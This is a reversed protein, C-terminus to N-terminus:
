NLVTQEQILKGFKGLLKKSIVRCKGKPLGDATVEVLIEGAEKSKVIIIATGRYLHCKTETIQDDICPNGSGMSVFEGTGTINVKIEREDDKLRNGAEDLLEVRIYALDMGDACILPDEPTLSLIAAEKVTTLSSRSIENGDKYVVAELIGPEYVVDMTAMLKHFPVRGLSRGNFFLEAEDGAGYVDVKVPKGEYEDAFTWTDNVDYWHWGSGSFNEGFHKPHTTYLGSKGHNGWMIERYISQPRQEGTLDFDAQWPTRWPYPGIFSVEENESEWFVNGLGVEGLYDVAVWICDGIVYPLKEVKEWYDYTNFAHTETALIVRDPFMEHSREYIDKLYNYGVIDLPECFEKTAEEWDPHEVQLNAEFNGGSAENEDEGAVPFLGCLACLVPRTSDFERVKNALCKSWKAGEKLGNSEKIENGISYTIVSPHNRDRKVMYEIDRAWWAEFYLHYDMPVKGRTWVDFAEDMLLMGLSDCIKLLELSPPYHSIRVTNYGAKMMMRIKREEAKPYACSGLFGNDHHICGGKLKVTKGNLQFGNVADVSISRIGFQDEASDLEEEGCLVKIRYTYLYPQDLDWLTPKSVPILAEIDTSEAVTVLVSASGVLVGEGNVVECRVTVDTAKKTGSVVLNMKVVANQKSVDPTTVFIDWPKIHVENGVWLSVSRYLGGGSYWRTSPQRSQTLIKLSNKKGNFRLAKTIDVQFPIYGNPHIMLLEDNVVVETNMYAGDIDLLVTKGQWDIPVELNKKYVGQGDGFYGNSAGGLADASRKKSIIFDHPLDVKKAKPSGFSYATGENAEYFDWEKNLDIKQMYLSGKM